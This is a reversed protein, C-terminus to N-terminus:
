LFNTFAEMPRRRHRCRSNKTSPMSPREILEDVDRFHRNQLQANLRQVLEPKHIELNM